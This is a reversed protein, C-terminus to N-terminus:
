AEARTVTGSTPFSLSKSALSGHSGGFSVQEIIVSGTWKPNDTGVAASDPRLEFAVSTGFIGWLIDDIASNTVDDNLEVQLTGSKVGAVMETWTDGMATSDNTGVQADLTVSKVYSSVDTANISLYCDLLTFAAM